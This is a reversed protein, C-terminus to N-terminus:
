PGNAALTAERSLLAQKRELGWHFGGLGGDARVVRHCPIVVALRNAGCASAVARVAKPKGIMNALESYSVTQGPPVTQLAAWVRRQFPTGVPALPQELVGAPQDIFAAIRATDDAHEEITPKLTQDPFHAQLLALLQEKSDGLEIACLGQDSWGVILHGLSCGTTGYRIM